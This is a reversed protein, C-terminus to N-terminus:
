SECNASVASGDDPRSLRNRAHNLEHAIVPNLGSRGGM